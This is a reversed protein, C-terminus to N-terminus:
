ESWTPPDKRNPFASILRAPMQEYSLVVLLWRSPGVGHLYHRRRDSYDPDPVVLDPKNITRLVETLHTGLEPHDRLVKGRWLGVSVVVRKGGPDMAEGELEGSGM